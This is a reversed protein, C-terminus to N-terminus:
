LLLQYYYYSFLSLSGSLAGVEYGGEVAEEVPKEIEECISFEVRGIGSGVLGVAGPVGNSEVITQVWKSISDDFFTTFLDPINPICLGVNIGIIIFRFNM